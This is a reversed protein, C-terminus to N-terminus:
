EEVHELSVRKVATHTQSSYEFPPLVVLSHCKAAANSDDAGASRQPVSFEYLSNENDPALRITQRIAEEAKEYQGQEFYV